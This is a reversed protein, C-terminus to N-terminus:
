NVRVQECLAIKTPKTQTVFSETASSARMQLRNNLLHEAIIGAELPPRFQEEARSLIMGGGARIQRQVLFVTADYKQNGGRKM